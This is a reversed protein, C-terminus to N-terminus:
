KKLCFVAYSISLLRTPESIHILSLDYKMYIPDAQGMPTVSRIEVNMGSPSHFSLSTAGPDPNLASQVARTKSDDHETLGGCGVMLAVVTCAVYRHIMHPGELKAPLVCPPGTGSCFRKRQPTFLCSRDSRRTM